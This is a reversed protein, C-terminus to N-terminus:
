IDYKKILEPNEFINGLVEIETYDYLRYATIFSNKFVYSGYEFSVVGYNDIENLNPNKYKVIDGLYIKRINKDDLGIYPMFIWHPDNTITTNIITINYYMGYSHRSWARYHPIKIGEILNRWYTDDPEPVEGFTLYSIKGCSMCTIKRKPPMSTYVNPDLIQQDSGCSCDYKVVEQGHYMGIRDFM